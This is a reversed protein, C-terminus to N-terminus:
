STQPAGLGRILFAQAVYLAVFYCLFAVGFTALDLRDVRSVAVIYAGFFLMKVGFAGMLLRGVRAPDQRQVYEIALWTVVAAALPALMGLFLESARGTVGAAVLWSAVCGSVMWVVQKM